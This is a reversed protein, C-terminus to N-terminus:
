PQERYIGFGLTFGPVGGSSFVTLIGQNVGAISLTYTASLTVVQTGANKMKVTITGPGTLSVYKAINDLTAQSPSNGVYSLNSITVSDSPGTPANRVFTVDSPAAAPSLPIFRLRVTNLPTPVLDDSLRITKLPGSGPTPPVDYTFYTYAKKSVFTETPLSVFTTFTGVPLVNAVRARIFRTGPRVNLPLSSGRYAVGTAQDLTDVQITLAPAGPSTNVFRVTAVDNTFVNDKGCGALVLGFSLAVLINKKM